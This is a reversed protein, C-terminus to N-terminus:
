KFQWLEEDMALRRWEKNVLRVNYIEENTLYSMIGLATTKPQKHNVGFLAFTEEQDLHRIKRKTKSSYSEFGLHLGSIGPDNDNGSEQHRDNEFFKTSTTSEHSGGSIPKVTPAKTDSPEGATKGTIENEELREFAFSEDEIVPIIDLKQSSSFLEIQSKACIEENDNISAANTEHQGVSLDSKIKEPTIDVCSSEVKFTFDDRLDSKLEGDSESVNMDMCKDREDYTFDETKSEGPPKFDKSVCEIPPSKGKEGISQSIDDAKAKLSNGEDKNDELSIRQLPKNPTEIANKPSRKAHVYKSRLHASSSNHHTPTSTSPYGMSSRSHGMYHPPPHRLHPPLHLHSGHGSSGQHPLSPSPTPHRSGSGPTTVTKGKWNEDSIQM